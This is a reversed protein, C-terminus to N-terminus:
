PNNTRNLGSLRKAERAAVEKAFQDETLFIIRPLMVFMDDISRNGWGKWNRPEVVRPNNPSNDYWAMLHVLTGKPLLPQVDDEYAYNKVWNHNYNACSLIERFGDPHMVELCMRKGSSHLHPEFTLIKGAQPMIYFADRMVNNDGAPIDLDYSGGIHTRNRLLYEPRYGKPHFKFAVDLRVKVETGIAHLHLSSFDIESGAKLLAGVDNPYILANQGLEYTMGFGSQTSSDEPDGQTRSALSAHHVSFLNLAGTTPRSGMAVRIEKVEVAKIYRDETLGTATSGVPGFWDPALARVAAVPSSVILDPTGISWENGAAFQRPPPMDAPNGGPAGTDVWKAIKAIQEDSLSPDDKFRQIGVTKDIFWPPMERSATKQKIARAWPRVDDYSIFSMPAGGGVRHCNQCSRQLIPAIDKTFTVPAQSDVQGAAVRPLVLAGTAVLVLLRTPMM